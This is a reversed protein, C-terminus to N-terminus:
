DSFAAPIRPMSPPPVLVVQASSFRSPSNSSLLHLPGPLVSSSSSAASSFSKRRSEGCARARLHFGDAAGEGSALLGRFFRAHFFNQTADPGRRRGHAHHFIGARSQGSGEDIAGADHDDGARARIDRALFRCAIRDLFRASPAM